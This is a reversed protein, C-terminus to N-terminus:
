VNEISKLEKEIYIMMMILVIVPSRLPMMVFPLLSAHGYLEIKTRKDGTHIHWGQQPNVWSVQLPRCRGPFEM